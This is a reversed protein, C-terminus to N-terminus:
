TAAAQEFIALVVSVTTDYRNMVHIRNDAASRRINIADDIGNTGTFTTTGGWLVLQDGKVANIPTNNIFGVVGGVGAVNAWITSTIFGAPVDITEVTDQPISLHYVTAAAAGSQSAAPAQWDVDGDTNSLKVLVDNTDGGPPLASGVAPAQWDADGDTNSLKVLIDNADGGPPLASGVATTVAPQGLEQNLGVDVTGTVNGSIVPAPLNFYKNRKVFINHAFRGDSSVGYDSVQIVAIGGDADREITNDEIELTDFMGFMRVGLTLDGTFTNRNIKTRKIYSYGTWELFVGIQIVGHFQNDVIDIDSTSTVNLTSQDATGTADNAVFPTDIEFSTGSANSVNHTGNYNTTGGIDVTMPLGSEYADVFTSVDVTVRTRGGGADAYATINASNLFRKAMRVANFCGDVINNAIRLKRPTQQITFASRDVNRIINGEAIIYPM